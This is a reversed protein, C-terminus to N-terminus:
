GDGLRYADVAADRALWRGVRAADAPGLLGREIQAALHLSVARRWLDHRAPISLFARTDDNFGALNWYGATEVVGDLYRAIGNASDHFWWPPGLRLAPWHGAMPALERAYTSEDLTFLLLRLRADNGVRNLLGDLGGVWDTRLPIDAGMDPGFGDFLAANTNRGAGAHLQMLLGDEISMQAMEILMHGHLADREAQTLSGARAGRFLRERTPADLWVTVLRTAAHDTATAGRAAFVARRAALAALYGKFTGTDEGTMEGLRDLNAAYEPAAPDLVADPRFTPIVRGRWDSGAIARHHALDDLAGDTTALVEIGFREFLARPRFAPTRLAADIADYIADATGPTLPADIDFVRRLTQAMWLHSPTGLFTHWHAALVHWVERPDRGAGTGLGLDELAVGQSYLLRFVYHDPQILLASPNPFAADGAFWAPDCHGHPSVIPLGRLEEYLDAARGTVRLTTMTDSM